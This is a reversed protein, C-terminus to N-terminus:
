VVEQQWTCLSQLGPISKEIGPNPRACDRSKPVSFRDPIQSGPIAIGVHVDSTVLSCVQLEHCDTVKNKLDQIETNAENLESKYKELLKVLRRNKAFEEETEHQRNNSEALREELAAIKQRLLNSEEEQAAVIIVDWYCESLM